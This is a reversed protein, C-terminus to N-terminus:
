SHATIIIIIIIIITTTTTIIIIILVSSDPNSERSSCSKKEEGCHRSRSQSGGLRGNLPHWSVKGRFLAAPDFSRSGVEM